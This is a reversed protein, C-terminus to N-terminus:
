KQIKLGEYAEEDTKVMKCLLYRIDDDGKIRYTTEVKWGRKAMYNVADIDSNFKKKKGEEDYITEYKEGGFNLSVTKPSGGLLSWAELECYVLYKGEEVTKTTDTQANASLAGLM